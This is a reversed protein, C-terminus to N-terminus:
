APEFLSVGHAKAATRLGGDLTALPLEFVRALQFYLGDSVQLHHSVAIDVLRRSSYPYHHVVVGVSEIEDLASNLTDLSIKRARMARLLGAAVEVELVHPAHFVAGVRGAQAVKQAYLRADEVEPLWWALLVSADLVVDIAAV